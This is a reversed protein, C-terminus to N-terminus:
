LVATLNVRQLGEDPTGPTRWTVIFTEPEETEALYFNGETPSQRGPARPLMFTGYRLWNSIHDPGLSPEDNTFVLPETAGTGNNIAM